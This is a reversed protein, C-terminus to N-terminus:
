VCPWMEDSACRCARGVGLPIEPGQFLQVIQWLADLDKVLQANALSEACESLDLKQAATMHYMTAPNDLKLHALKTRLM